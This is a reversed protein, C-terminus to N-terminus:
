AAALRDAIIRYVSPNFVLGVHTGHVKFNASCDDTQCYRWDVVGDDETYIATEMVGEPVCTRAAKAFDCTCRSTYCQPLVGSNHKELISLRIQEAARLVSGHAVLGRLPAGLTIVSAIDKSRQGAISRAMIGGLSHGILHVKRGTQQMAKEITENLRSQILLNPCENNLGIGSYFSQYGMRELWHLMPMLWVDPCLFGPILIVGSGDGRAAGFGYYLPDAHLMLLETAFLAETWIALYAEQHDELYTIQARGM